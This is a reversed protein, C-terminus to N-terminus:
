PAVKYVTGCSDNTAGGATTTGYLYNGVRLLGGGPGAGDPDGTFTHLVKETGAPTVEFVVGCGQYEEEQQCTLSGGAITTGYLNGKPDMVLDSYPAAGDAGGTFSYLVTEEGSPSLKFVTGCGFLPGCVGSMGGAVTTGYLNGANDRLLNALPGSGDSGGFNYLVTERGSESLRFVTGFFDYLGGEATTGYLNGANDRVLGSEPMAGDDPPGAFTHLEVIKDSSSLKFLTGNGDTGASSTTGYLNGRPDLLLNGSPFAGDKQGTFSYLVTETGAASVEFVTGAGGPGDNETTGYLNGGADRTLGAGPYRGDTPAGAFSHLLTETGDASVEFVTGHGYVGGFATTGYLNGASDAILDGLPRQGDSFNGGQCFSYIVSYNQARALSTGGLSLALVLLCALGATVGAPRRSALCDLHSLTSRAIRRIM